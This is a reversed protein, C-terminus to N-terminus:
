PGMKNRGPSRGERHGRLQFVVLASLISRRNIVRTNAPQTGCNKIRGPSGRVILPRGARYSGNGLSLRPNGGSEAASTTSKTVDDIALRVYKRYLRQQAKWAIQRVEASVAENRKRIQVSM